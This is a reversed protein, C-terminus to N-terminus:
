DREHWQTAGPQAGSSEAESNAKEWEERTLPQIIELKKKELSSNADKVDKAVFADFEKVVDDLDHKLSDIRAVQYDAPRGEYGIFTGYLATTKERIREEGTIAGGEKTAVIKKRIEDAKAALDQLRKRLPDNAGLKAARESLGERVANIRDVDFTMDGLLNYVRMTADFNLKRDELTYKARADLTVVLPTTYTEKGRTMKVTYNGPVIRPGQSAEFAATVAPPVRPAKVRMPWEVRSLGRRSNAPVTDILKNQDDFI